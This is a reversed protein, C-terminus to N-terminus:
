KGEELQKLRKELLLVQKKLEPLQKFVIYARVYDNYQIAPAGFLATGPKTVSSALGSQAQVRTGDAIILHGAVGTQGGLQCNEGIKTSGAIGVQAAIATNKGIEVNHAIHVLNDIKVGQRILTSGMSARDICTNAGIEVADEIVVNGVHPVKKWAGNEAPAFGFGDSGIVANAHVMCDNGIICDHLIRAGPGIRCGKGIRANRGIYAQASIWTGADIVAGEEVVVFESIHVGPGIKASPHVVAQPSVETSSGNTRNSPDFNELLVVLSGRVDDVRILTPRVPRSPRFSSHVLLVSANTTYAYPEYKAGDLFAFDGEVAEEIRAPRRVAANPDGEITGHILQALQAATVTM